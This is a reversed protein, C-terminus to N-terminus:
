RQLRPERLGRRPLPSPPAIPRIRWALVGRRARMVLASSSWSLAISCARASAPGADAGGIVGPVLRERLGRLSVLACGGGLRAGVGCAGLGHPGTLVRGGLELLSRASASRSRSSITARSVSVAPRRDSTVVAWAASSSRIRGVCGALPVLHAGRHFGARLHVPVASM